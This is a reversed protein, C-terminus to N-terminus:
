RSILHFHMKRFYSNALSSFDSLRQKAYSSFPGPVGGSHIEDLYSRLLDRTAPSNHLLFCIWAWSDRYDDGQMMAASNVQELHELRPPFGLRSKWRVTERRSSSGQQDANTELYEALGEDIWLPLFPLHQHLRVHTIEHRLDVMLWRSNWAYIQSVDHNRFYVARRQLAEPLTQALYNHYSSQSRFLILEVAEDNGAVGLQDRLQDSVSQLQSEITDVDVPFESYVTLSGRQEQVLWRSTDQCDARHWPCLILCSLLTIRRCSM